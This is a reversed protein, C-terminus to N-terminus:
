EPTMEAMKRELDKVVKARQKRDEIKNKAEEKNKPFTEKWVESCYDFAYNAKKYLTPYKVGLKENVGSAILNVKQKM